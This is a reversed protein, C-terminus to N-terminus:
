QRVPLPDAFNMVSLLRMRRPSLSAAPRHSVGTSSPARTRPISARSQRFHRGATIVRALSPNALERQPPLRDRRFPLDPCLVLKGELGGAEIRRHADAVEDFADRAAHRRSAGPLHGGLAGQRRRCHRYLVVRDELAGSRIIETTTPNTSSPDSRAVQIIFPRVRVGAPPSRRLLPAIAATSSVQEAWALHDVVRQIDVAGAITTVRPPLNRLPVDENFFPGAVTMGDISTLGDAGNNLSPARAALFRGLPPRTAPSLLRDYARTGAPGVFVAARIAPECAFGFMGYMAGLSHGYYYYLRSANM